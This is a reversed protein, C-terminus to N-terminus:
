GSQPRRAAAKMSFIFSGPVRWSPAQFSVSTLQVSICYGLPLNTM